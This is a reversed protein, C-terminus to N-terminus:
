KGTQMKTKVTDLPHGVFPSVLGFLAGGVLARLGEEFATGTGALSGHLSKDDDLM